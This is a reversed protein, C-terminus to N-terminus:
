GLTTQPLSAAAPGTGADTDVLAVILPNPGAPAGDLARLRYRVTTVAERALPTGGTLQGYPMVDNAIRLPAPRWSGTAPDRRELRHGPLTGGPTAEMQFALLLHRYARTNGNRLTVTFERAPGGPQLLLRGGPTGVTMTLRTPVPPGAAAKSATAPTAAATASPGPSGPATASPRPSSSGSVSPSPAAPPAVPSPSGSLAPAAPTASTAPPNAPAPATTTKAATGSGPTCAATLAAALAGIFLARTRRM